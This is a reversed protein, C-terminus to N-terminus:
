GGIMLAESRKNFEIESLKKMNDMGNDGPKTIV